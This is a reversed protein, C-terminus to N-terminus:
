TDKNFGWKTTSRLTNSPRARRMNEPNKPCEKNTVKTTKITDVKVLKFNVFCFSPRLWFGAKSPVLVLLALLALLALALLSTSTSPSSVIVSLSIM